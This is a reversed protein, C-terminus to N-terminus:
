DHLHHFLSDSLGPDHLLELFLASPLPHSLIFSFLSFLLVPASLWTSLPSSLATYIARSSYLVDWDGGAIGSPDLGLYISNWLCLKTVDSRDQHDGRFAGDSACGM